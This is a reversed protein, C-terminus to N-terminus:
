AVVDCLSSLKLTLELSSCMSVVQCAPVGSVFQWCFLLILDLNLVTRVIMIVWATLACMGTMLHSLEIHM